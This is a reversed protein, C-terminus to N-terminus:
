KKLVEKIISALPYTTKRQFRSWYQPHPVSWSTLGINALKKEAVEGLSIFTYSSLWKTQELQDANVWLLDRETVDFAHLHNTLWQSCGVKSFSVFPWQHWSDCDKPEAFSEGVLVVKAALNGASSADTLHRPLRLREIIELDLDPCRTYDYIFTPLASAPQNGYRDYVTKLQSDDALMEENRRSLFVDVVNKWPPRCHVLVAGCRMAVRELMRRSAMTLRDRGNRFAECYPTESPWCRDFVVDQYGLLAPQMAELYIRGLNKTVDPLSAFHIYLASTAEAYRKALTTKGSCDVGEFITLRASIIPTTM